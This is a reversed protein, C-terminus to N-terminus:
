LITWKFSIQAFLSATPSFFALHMVITMGDSKYQVIGAVEKVPIVDSVKINNTFKTVLEDKAKESLLLQHISIINMQERVAQNSTYYRQM